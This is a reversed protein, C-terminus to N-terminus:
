GSTDKWALFIDSQWVHGALKSLVALFIFQINREGTMFFIPFTPLTNINPFVCNKFTYLTNKDTEIHM